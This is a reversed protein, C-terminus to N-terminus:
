IPLVSRLHKTKRDSFKDRAKEVSPSVQRDYPVPVSANINHTPTSALLVTETYNARGTYKAPRSKCCQETRIAARERLTM